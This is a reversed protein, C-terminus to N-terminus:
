EIMRERGEWRRGDARENMGQNSSVVKLWAFIGVLMM